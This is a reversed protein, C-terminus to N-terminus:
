DYGPMARGNRCCGRTYKFFERKLQNQVTKSDDVILARYKNQVGTNSDQTERQKSKSEGNFIQEHFFSSLENEFVQDLADLVKVPSFPRSFSYGPFKGLEKPTVALLVPPHGNRALKQWAAQAAENDIIAIIIHAQHLHTNIFKYPVHDRGNSIKFMSKLISMEREFLGLTGVSCAKEESM